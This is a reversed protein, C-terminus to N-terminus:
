SNLARFRGWTSGTAVKEVQATEEEEGSTLNDMAGVSVVREREPRKLFKAEGSIPVSNLSGSRRRVMMNRISPALTSTVRPVGGWMSQREQAFQQAHFAPKLTTNNLDPVFEAIPQPPDNRRFFRGFSRPDANPPPLSHVPANNSNNNRRWRLNFGSSPPVEQPPLYPSGYREFSDSSRQGAIMM